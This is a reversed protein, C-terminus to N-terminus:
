EKFQNLKDNMLLLDDEIILLTGFLATRRLERGYDELHFFLNRNKESFFVLGKNGFLVRKREFVACYIQKEVMLVAEEDEFDITELRHEFMELDRSGCDVTELNSLCEKQFQDVSNNMEEYQDIAREADEMDIKGSLFLQCETVIQSRIENLYDVLYVRLNQSLVLRLENLQRELNKM